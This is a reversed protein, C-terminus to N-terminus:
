RRVSYPRGCDRGGITVRFSEKVAHKPAVSHHLWEYGGAYVDNQTGFPRKDL